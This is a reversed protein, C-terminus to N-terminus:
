SSARTPAPLAVPAWSSSASCSKKEASGASTDTPEHSCHEHVPPTLAIDHSFCCRQVRARACHARCGRPLGSAGVRGRVPACSHYERLTNRGYGARLVM